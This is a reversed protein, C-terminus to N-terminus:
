SPGWKVYPHLAHDASPSKMQFATICPLAKGPPVPNEKPKPGNMLEKCVASLDAYVQEMASLAGTSALLSRQARALAIAADGGSQLVRAKGQLEQAGPHACILLLCQSHQLNM